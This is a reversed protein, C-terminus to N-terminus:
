FREVSAATRRYANRCRNLLATSGHPGTNIVAIVAPATEPRAPRSRATLATGALGGDQLLIGNDAATEPPPATAAAPQRDSPLARLGDLVRSLLLLHDQRSSPARDVRWIPIPLDETLPRWSNAEAAEDPELVVILRGSHTGYGTCRVIRVLGGLLVRDGSILYQPSVKTEAYGPPPVGAGPFGTMPVDATETSM